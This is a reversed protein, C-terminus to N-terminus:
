KIVIDYKDLLGVVGPLSFQAKKVRNLEPNISYNYSTRFDAKELLTSEFIAGKLDCNEFVASNLDAEAFDVEQLSCNRFITKKLKLRYFSSLNLICNKFNVSFLFEECHDFRLGLLKCERFKIGKLATKTLKAMSINCSDFECEIFTFKSLDANSFNCNTFICNEYEGKVLARETFDIREFAEDVIYDNAM